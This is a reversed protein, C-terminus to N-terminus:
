SNINQACVITQKCSLKRKRRQFALEEAVLFVKHSFIFSLTINAALFTYVCTLFSYLM